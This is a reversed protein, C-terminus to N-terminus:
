VESAPERRRARSLARRQRYWEGVDASAEFFTELTARVARVLRAAARVGLWVVFRESSRIPEDLAMRPRYLPGDMRYATLVLTSYLLGMAIWLSKLGFLLFVNESMSM